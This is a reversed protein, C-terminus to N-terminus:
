SSDSSSFFPMLLHFVPPLFLSIHSYTQVPSNSNQMKLCSTMQKQTGWYFLCGGESSVFVVKEYTIEM